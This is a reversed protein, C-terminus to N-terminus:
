LIHHIKMLVVSFNDVLLQRLVGFLVDSGSYYGSWRQGVMKTDEGVCDLWRPVRVM